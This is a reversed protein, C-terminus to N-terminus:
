DNHAFVELVNSESISALVYDVVGGSYVNDVIAKATEIDKANVLHLIATKKERGSKEDLTILNIRAKFYKEALEEQMFIERYKTKTLAVVEHEGSTYTSTEDILITEAESFSMADIAFCETISKILGNEMMKDYKVKGEFWTSRITRVDM